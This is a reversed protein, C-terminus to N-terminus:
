DQYVWASVKGYKETHEPQAARSIEHAQQELRAMHMRAEGLVEEEMGLQQAYCLAQYLDPLNQAAVASELALGVYVQKVMRLLFTEAQAVAAGHYTQRTEWVASVLARLDPEPDDLESALLEKYVTYEDSDDFTSLPAGFRTGASTYLSDPPILGFLVGETVLPEPLLM